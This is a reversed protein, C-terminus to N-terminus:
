YSWNNWQPRGDYMKNMPLGNLHVEGYQSDYGRVRFFAQGFDFAARNLFIDRTSQLLALANSNIEDDLLEDDSINILNISKEVTVDRELFIVGLDITNDDLFVPIRKIDYDPTSIQLIFEGKNSTILKFEGLENTTIPTSEGELVVQANTIVESKVREKIIGSITTANQANIFCIKFFLVLFLTHKIM